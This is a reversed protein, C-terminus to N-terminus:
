FLSKKSVIHEKRNEGTPNAIADRQFQSLAEIQEWTIDVSKAWERLEQKDKDSLKNLNLGEESEESSTEGKRAVPTLAQLEEDEKQM